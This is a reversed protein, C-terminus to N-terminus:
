PYIERNSAIKKEINNNLASYIIWVLAVLELVDTNKKKSNDIILDWLMRGHLRSMTSM